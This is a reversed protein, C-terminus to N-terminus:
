MRTSSALGSCQLAEVDCAISIWSLRTPRSKLCLDNTNFEIFVFHLIPIVIGLETGFAILRKLSDVM